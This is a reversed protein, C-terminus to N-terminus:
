KRTLFSPLYPAIKKNLFVYVLLIYLTISLSGFLGLSLPNKVLPKTLLSFLSMFLTFILPKAIQSLFSFDIEKKVLIVPLFLTASIIVSAYPWGVFGFRSIALPVLVWTAVTWFIMLLFSKKIRGLANLTNVLPSSYSALVAALTFFYFSTLAPEWKLYKPIIKIAPNIYIVGLISIPLIFLSLFFISKEIAKRLLIRDKQMRSFAPFTVRIVSDMILRLAIEAWKKAWGLYGVQSFPLVKGLYMVLLDDKVLAMLSNAQFPAGFSVLNKVSKISLGIAPKWPSIIYIAILGTAGRIVAAWAFSLLGFKFFALIIATLYFAFTELIQPWVLSQFDLKRELLVSPITKLSSLFFSILLAYLLFLGAQSLRYFSSILPASLFFLIILSLVLIQQITFASVLEIRQPEEKKQILAAALGIDSFYNLFSIIAQVVFFVGFISPDLLITLIFTSIFAIVQLLFTRTSLAMVGKIIQGKLLNAESTEM